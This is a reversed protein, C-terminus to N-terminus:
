PQTASPPDSAPVSDQLEKDLEENADMTAGKSSAAPDNGAIEREAQLWFQEPQGEPRGAEIWLDYARQRIQGDQDDM